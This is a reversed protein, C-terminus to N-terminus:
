PCQLIRDPNEEVSAQGTGAIAMQHRLRLLIHTDKENFWDLVQPYYNKLTASIGNTLDVRAQVLKRCYELLQALARIEASEPEISKLRNMHKELMETQLFADGPDDKAGSLFFAKRYKAM